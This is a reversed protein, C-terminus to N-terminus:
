GKALAEAAKPDGADNDIVLAGPLAERAAKIHEASHGTVIVRAGEETLRRASALGIGSTGGTVLVTKDQFRRM